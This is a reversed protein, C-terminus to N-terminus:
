DSQKNKKLNRVIRDMQYLYQTMTKKIHKIALSKEISDPKTLLIALDNQAKKHHKRLRSHALWKGVDPFNKDVQEVTYTTAQPRFSIFEKIADEETHNESYYFRIDNQSYNYTFKYINPKM